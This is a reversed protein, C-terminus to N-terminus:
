LAVFDHNRFIIHSRVLSVLPDLLLPLEQCHNLPLDNRCRYYFGSEFCDVLVFWTEVLPTALVAKRHRIKIHNFDAM